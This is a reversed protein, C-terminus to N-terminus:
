EEDSFARPDLTKMKSKVKPAYVDSIEMSAESGRKAFIEELNMLDESTVKTPALGMPTGIHKVEDRAGYGPRQEYFITM